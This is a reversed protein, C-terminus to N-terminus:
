IEYNSENRRSWLRRMGCRCLAVPDDEGVDCDIQWIHKHM